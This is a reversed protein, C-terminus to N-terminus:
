RLIDVCHLEILDTQAGSPGQVPWRELTDLWYAGTQLCYRQGPVDAPVELQHRQVILDGIQWQEQPVGLGDGVAIPIGEAGVLHAMISLPRGPLTKVRWFTWLTVPVGPYVGAQPAEYGVYELPGTITAGPPSSLVPQTARVVQYAVTGDPRRATLELTALPPWTANPPLVFLGAQDGAPYLWSQECDLTVVRLAPHNLQARVTEPAVQPVPDACVVAWAPSEQPAVRYLFLANGLRAVPERSRFWAFTNLEPAYPGQLVTAGIAYLGPAPAWPTFVVARPDPPLFDANIGYVRPAAPSYHAYYVHTEGQEAMWAKLDWLNQGWDLNSDVLYRYGGAPGGALENFFTLPYPLTRLTGWALWLLLASITLRSVHSTFRAVHSTLRSPQRSIASLQGSVVISLSPLLPLLHRYGINVSSFLASGAYLLPFLLLPSRFVSSTCRALHLTIASPQRSSASVQGSVASYLAWAALLLVPLPTKLVFAVPFYWWWGHNSVRGMLFTPHGLTYHEQLARYILGHTGAPIPFPLGPVATLQFGYGAWLVLFAPLFVLGALRLVCFAFRSVHPTFRSASEVTARFAVWLMLWGVVPVLLLSSVKALQALGVLVGLGMWGWPSALGAKAGGRQATSPSIQRNLVYLTVVSFFTAAMDTTILAGHAILNPDLACLTLALLGARWGGRERAWRYVVAGLLIGLLLIPVRGATALRAPHLNQWVVADTVASLSAIEWGDITRPDPLTPDLLLPLAALVNALPPHIHVPQLRFDGTRLTAYGVALHPGEDFTLSAHRIQQLGLTFYLCLVLVATWRGGVSLLRREPRGAVHAFLASRDTM